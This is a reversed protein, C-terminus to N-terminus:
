VHEAYENIVPMLIEPNMGLEQVYIKKAQTAFLESNGGQDRTKAALAGIEDRIAWMPRVSSMGLGSGELSSVIRSIKGSSCVVSGDEVGTALQKILNEKLNKRIQDSESTQIVGWVDALTNAESRNFKSHITDTLSDIVRLANERELASLDSNLVADTVQSIHDELSGTVPPIMDINKLVTQVVAHDHVNQSDVKYQPIIPKPETAPSTAPLEERAIGPFVPRAFTSMGSVIDMAHHYVGSGIHTDIDLAHDGVDDDNSMPSYKLEFRKMQAIGATAADGGMSAVRYLLNALYTNPRFWPFSGRAYVDAIAVVIDFRSPDAHYTQSLSEINGPQVVAMQNDVLVQPPPQKPSPLDLPLERIEQQQPKPQNTPQISFYKQLPPKKVMKTYVVSFIILIILTAAALKIVRNM